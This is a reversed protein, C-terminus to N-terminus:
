KGAETEKERNGRRSVIKGAREKEKEWDRCRIKRSGMEQKM